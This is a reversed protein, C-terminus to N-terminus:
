RQGGQRNQQVQNQLRQLQEATLVGRVQQSFTENISRIRNIQEERLGLSQIAARPNQGAQVAQAFKNRQEPTLVGEIAQQTTIYIQRIQQIQEQSLNLADQISTGRNSPSTPQANPRSNPQSTQSFAITPVLTALAVATAFVSVRKAFKFAM